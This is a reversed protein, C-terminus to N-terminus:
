FPGNSNRWQDRPPIPTLVDWHEVIKGNEVRFLDYLATPGSPIDGESLVLVFNGEAVFRRPTLYLQGGEKAVSAIRDRLRAIGDGIQSSHQAYHADEIFQEIRDFRLSVMVTERYTRVLTRNEETKERDLVETPGDVQTRGSRNPPAEAEQGGWHEVIKGKEFRFLDFAIASAHRGVGQYRSHLLVFDGDVLTRYITIDAAPSSAIEAAFSKMGALGDALDPDHQKFPDGFYRDVATPDKKRFIDIMARRANAGLTDSTTMTLGQSQVDSLAGIGGAIAALLVFGRHVSFKWNAFFGRAV